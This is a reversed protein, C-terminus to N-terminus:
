GWSVRSWFFRQFSTVMVFQEPPNVGRSDDWQVTITFVNNTTADRAISGTGSPLTCALTNRWAVLDQQAITTFSSLDVASCDPLPDPISTIYAGNDVAETRNVRMADVINAALNTAKTRFASSTSMQLMTAQLSALGLLGVAMIAMTIVVELLTFGASIKMAKNM